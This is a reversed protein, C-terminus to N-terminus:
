GVISSTERRQKDEEPGRNSMYQIKQIYIKRIVKTMNKMTKDKM